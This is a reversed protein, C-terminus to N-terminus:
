KKTILKGIISKDGYYAKWQDCRDCTEIDHWASELHKKRIEIYAKSRWIKELKSTRASGLLKLRDWDHNCLAVGGNWYVVMENFPKLCPKRGAHKSPGPEKEKSGFMGGESHMSYIRIRDVKNRWLGIFRKVSSRNEKTKVLSIQIEPITKGSSRKLGLFYNINSLVRDFDGGKCIKKYAGKDAADLSFNIHDIGTTLLFGAMKKDLLLGNTFLMIRGTIKKRAYAILEKFKPHLLPEGRFFPALSMGPYKSMQDIINKFLKPDMIGQPAKMYNRPCMSCALNCRNTLEVVIRDPPPPATKLLKERQRPRM